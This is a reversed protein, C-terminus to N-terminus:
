ARKASDRGTDSPHKSRVEGEPEAHRLREAEWYRKWAADVLDGMERERRRSIGQRIRSLLKMLAAEFDPEKSGAMGGVMQVPRPCFLPSFSFWVCVRCETTENPRYNGGPNILSDTASGANPLLGLALIM